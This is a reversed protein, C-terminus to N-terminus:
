KNIVIMSEAADENCESPFHNWTLNNYEFFLFFIIVLKVGILDHFIKILRSGFM